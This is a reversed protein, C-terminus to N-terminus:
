AAVERKTLQPWALTLMEALLFLMVTVILWKWIDRGQVRAGELSFIEDSELWRIDSEGTRNRFELADITSLESEEPPCNFSLAVESTEREEEGSTDITRVLYHGNQVARSVRIGFREASLAEVALPELAGSPLKIEQRLLDSRQAPLTVVDGTEFNREPLTQELLQRLMRDFMLIANTGTLTNWSSYVGSTMFLIRGAGVNREILFPRAEQEYRALVRPRTQEAVTAADIEDLRALADPEAWLLWEPRVSRREDLNAQRESAANNDLTGVRELQEWQRQQSASATLFARTEELRVAEAAVLQGITEDQLDVAVAKFFLPLQYLDELAERAEGEIQFFDHELSRFDLRFAELQGVAVEPLQGIPDGSLPAPLIGAGDLWAESQWANADFNAGAAILLPGGQEVFRHVPPVALSCSLVSGSTCIM